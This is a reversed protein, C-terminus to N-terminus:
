ILKFFLTNYTRAVLIYGKENMFRYLDTTFINELDKQLDEVLILDPKYKNWNNSNLVMFDLGEVDITLFDIHTGEPLYLDLVTELRQTHLQRKEIIKFSNLGDKKNAEIESFTNLAPENFMYYTLTETKNSIPTEVNIDEPRIIHFKQMCDPMADINIGRWGKLYFKYTNSFRIPHHAGVDVFFGNQRDEFFRNLILDEGEQSFSLNQFKFFDTYRIENEILKKISKPLLFLVMQKIIEKIRAM